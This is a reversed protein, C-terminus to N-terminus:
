ERIKLTAGTDISVKLVTDEVRKYTDYNVDCDECGRIDIQLIKHGKQMKSEVCRKLAPYSNSHLFITDDNFVSGETAGVGLCM